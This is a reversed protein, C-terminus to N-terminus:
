KNKKTKSGGKLYQDAGSGKLWDETRSQDTKATPKKKTGKKTATLGMIWTALAYLVGGAMALMVCYMWLLEYDIWRPKEIIDITENFFTSAYSQREADMYFATLAVQLEMPRLSKDPRFSYAFTAEEKSKVATFYVQYSFNQVFM